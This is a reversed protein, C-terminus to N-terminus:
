AENERMAAAIESTRGSEIEKSGLYPSGEEQKRNFEESTGKRVLEEGWDFQQCIAIEVGDLQM